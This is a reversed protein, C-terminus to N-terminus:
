LSKWLSEGRDNFKEFEILAESKKCHSLWNSFAYDGFKLKGTCLQYHRMRSNNSVKPYEDIGLLKVEAVIPSCLYALCSEAISEHCSQLRFEGLWDPKGHPPGDKANILFDKATQHIFYVRGGYAHLFFSCTKYIWAKFEAEQQLDLDDETRFDSQEDRINLAINMERLTLPRAAALVLQLMLKMDSQDGPHVKSLLGIYTESVTSPLDRFVDTWKKQM